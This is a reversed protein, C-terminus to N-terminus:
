VRYQILMKNVAKTRLKSATHRGHADGLLFLCVFVFLLFYVLDNVKM